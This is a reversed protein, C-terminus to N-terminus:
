KGGLTLQYINFYKSAEHRTDDEDDEGDEEDRKQDWENTQKNIYMNVCAHVKYKSIAM